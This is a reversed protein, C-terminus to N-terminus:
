SQKIEEKEKILDYGMLSATGSTPHMLTSLMSILTTKGAGNVGLLGFLEGDQITLNVHNVAVLSHYKKTIDKIEIM